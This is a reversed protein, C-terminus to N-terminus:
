KAAIECQYSNLERDRCYDRSIDFRLELYVLNLTILHMNCDAKWKTCNHDTRIFNSLFRDNAVVTLRLLHMLDIFNVNVNVNIFILSDLDNSMESMIRAVFIGPLLIRFSINSGHKYNNNSVQTMHSVWM